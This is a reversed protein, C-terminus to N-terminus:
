TVASGIVWRWDTFGYGWRAYVRWKASVADFDEANSLEPAVRDFWFLHEKMLNSDIMFWNNADTLRPWVLVKFRNYMFNATNSFEGPVNESAGIEWMTKELEPPILILDPQVGILNGRDDTFAVMAQRITDLQAASIATTYQNDTVQTKGSAAPGRFTHSDSCLAVGDGGTTAITYGDPTVWTTSFANNFLASAYTQKTRVASAALKAPYQRMAGYRDDDYLKRTITFGQVYEPFDITVDYGEFPQDYQVKGLADLRHLEGMAGLSSFKESSYGSTQVNFLKPIWNNTADHQNFSDVFIQRFGATLIDPFGGSTPTAM